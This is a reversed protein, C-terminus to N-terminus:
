KFLVFKEFFSQLLKEAQSAGVKVIVNAPTSVDYSCEIQSVLNAIEPFVLSYANSHVSFFLSLEFTHFNGCNNQILRLNGLLNGGKRAECNPGM